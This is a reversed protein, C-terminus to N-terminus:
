EWEYLRGTGFVGRAGATKVRARNMVGGIAVEDKGRKRNAVGCTCGCADCTGNGYGVRASERQDLEDKLERIQAELEFLQVRWAKRTNNLQEDFIKAFDLELDLDLDPGETTPRSQEPQVDNGHWTPSVDQERDQHDPEALYDSPLGHTFTMSVPRLELQPQIAAVGPHPTPRTVMGDSSHGGDGPDSCERAAQHLKEDRGPSPGHNDDLHPRAQTHPASTPLSPTPQFSSSAKNFLKMLGSKKGKLRHPVVPSPHGSLTSRTPVPIPAPTCDKTSIPRAARIQRHSDGLTSTLPQVPETHYRAHAKAQSRILARSREREQAVELSILGFGPSGSSLLPRDSYSPLASPKLKMEDDDASDRPASLALGDGEYRIPSPLCFASKLKPTTPNLRDDSSSTSTTQTSALSVGSASPLLHKGVGLINVLGRRTSGSGDTATSTSGSPSVTRSRMQTASRMIRTAHRSLGNLGSASDDHDDEDAYDDEWPNDAYKRVTPGSIMSLCRALDENEGENDSSESPARLHSHTPMTQHRRGANYPTHRSYLSPSSTSPSVENLPRPLPIPRVVPPPPVPPPLTQLPPSM